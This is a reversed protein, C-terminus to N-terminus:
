EKYSRIIWGLKILDLRIEETVFSESVFGDKNSMGSCYWDIYDEKKSPNEISMNRIDAIISGAGRWSTTWEEDGYFFKNNCMAAYLNQSYVISYKCKDKITSNAFLDKELDPKM